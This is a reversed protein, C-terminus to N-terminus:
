CFSVVPDWQFHFIEDGRGFQSFSACFSSMFYTSIAWKKSSQMIRLRPSFYDQSGLYDQSGMFYYQSGM